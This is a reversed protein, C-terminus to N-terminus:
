VATELMDKIQSVLKDLVDQVLQDNKINASRLLELAKDRREELLCICYEIGGDDILMQQTRELAAPDGDIIRQVATEFACTDETLRGYIMLLNGGHAWDPAAPQAMIDMLDDRIQVM